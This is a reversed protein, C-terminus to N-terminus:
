KIELHTMDNRFGPSNLAATLFHTQRFLLHRVEQDLDMASSQLKM